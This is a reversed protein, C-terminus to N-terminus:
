SLALWRKAVLSKIEDAGDDAAYIGYPHWWPEMYAQALSIENSAVFGAQQQEPTPKLSICDIWNEITIPRLYISM